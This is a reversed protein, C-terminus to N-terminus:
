PKNHSYSHLSGGEPGLLLLARDEQSTGPAGLETLQKELTPLDTWGGNQSEALYGIVEIRRGTAERLRELEDEAGAAVLAVIKVRATRAPGFALDRRLVQGHYALVGLAIAAGSLNKLMWSVDNNDLGAGLLAQLVLWLLSVGFGIAALSSVLVVLGLLQRRESAARESEPAAAAARQLRMWGGLWAGAGVVGAAISASLRDRWWNEGSLTDGTNLLFDLALWLVSILAPVLIALGLVTLLAFGVRRPWPIGGPVLREGRGRPAAQRRIVAWHHVWIVGAVLLAPLFDQVFSWTSELEPTYGFLRRLLEFLGQGASALAWPVALLLIIYLYVVRVRRAGGRSLDYQWVAGWLLGGSLVLAAISGWRDWVSRASGALLEPQTIGVLDALIQSIAQTVGVVLFALSFGALLCVALDHLADEDRASRESWGLRAYYVWAAGFVLLRAASFLTDQATNGTDGMGPLTLLYRLVSHLAFLAVISTFAFVAGLFFRREPSNREERSAAARRQSMVWFALWTPLGIILEALYLSARIRTDEGGSLTSGQLALTTLALGLLGTVAYLVTLLGAFALVYRFLRRPDNM